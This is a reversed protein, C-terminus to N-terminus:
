RRPDRKVYPARWVKATKPGASPRGVKACKSRGRLSLGKQATRRADAPLEAMEARYIQLDIPTTGSLAGRTGSLAGRWYFVMYDKPFNLEASIRSSSLAAPRATPRHLAWRTFALGSPALKLLLLRLPAPASSRPSSPLVAGRYPLTWALTRRSTSILFDTRALAAACVFWCCFTFLRATTIIFHSRPEPLAPM